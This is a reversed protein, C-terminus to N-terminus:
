KKAEESKIFKKIALLGIYYDFGVVLLTSGHEKSSPDKFPIEAEELIRHAEKSEKENNSFLVPIGESESM